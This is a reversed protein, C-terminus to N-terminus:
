FYVQFGKDNFPFVKLYMDFLQIHVDTNRFWERCKLFTVHGFIGSFVTNIRYIKGM